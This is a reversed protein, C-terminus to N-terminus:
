AQEQQLNYITSIDSSAKPLETINYLLLRLNQKTQLAQSRCTCASFFVVLSYFSSCCLRCRHTEVFDPTLQYSFVSFQYWNEVPDVLETKLKGLVNRETGNREPCEEEGQYEPCLM